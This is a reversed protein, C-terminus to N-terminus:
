IELLKSNVFRNLSVNYEAAKMAIARHVDPTTRITFVGSYHKSALPEPIPENNSKMDSIVESILKLIGKLAAEPSKALWSLSPFELCLGVYEEDEPSWTVRYTYRNDGTIAKTVM